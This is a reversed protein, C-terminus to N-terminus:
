QGAAPANWRALTRPGIGRVALVDDWTAFAGRARRAEVIRSALVPGVGPLLDLSEPPATSLFLLPDRAFAPPPIKGGRALTQAPAGRTMSAASDHLAPAPAGAGPPGSPRTFWREALGLGGILAMVIVAGAMRRM